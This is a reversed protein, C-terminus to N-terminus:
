QLGKNLIELIIKRNNILRENEPNINIGLDLYYISEPLLGKYYLALSLIDYPTENWAFVENIYTKQHSKINLAMKVYKIIEDYNELEYYLLALEIYPDRLHPAETIAKQYWLISEDYRKLEKYCRAIFRMSACREDKWTASKLNLHKILTDIAENYKKYYMYERGLYHMNRDDEPDEKVSLELLPLYSSRSKKVDPFHNLTIDLINKRKENQNINTLVEHVPHTWKYDKKTHINDLIFSVNPKNNTLSWNYTYGIRTEGDYNEELLKRWGPLFVEDLDTCVCLADDPTMSLAMNRAEDFRFSKFKHTKVNVGLSKLIKVSDDTSGTDLVYISDAEKMSDYWRKIFKSENKCIAYVVIKM